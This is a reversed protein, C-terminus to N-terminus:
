AARGNDGPRDDGADAVGGERHAVEITHRLHLHLATIHIQPGRAIVGVDPQRGALADADAGVAEVAGGTHIGAGILASSCVDSSWDSSRREYATKQEFFFFCRM